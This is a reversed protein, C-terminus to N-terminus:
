QYYSNSWAHRKIFSQISASQLTYLPRAEMYLKISYVKFRNFLDAEQEYLLVGVEAVKKLLLPPANKLDVLEINGYGTKTMLEEQLEAIERLGLRREAIFGIDIDSQAHTKGTAQSGFLAGCVLGRKSAVESFQQSLLSVSIM